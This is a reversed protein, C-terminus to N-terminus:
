NRPTPARSKPRSCGCFIPPTASRRTPRFRRRSRRPHARARRRDDAGAFDAAGGQAADGRAFQRGNGSRLSRARVRGHAACGDSPRRQDLPHYRAGARAAQAGGQARRRLRRAAAQDALRRQAAALRDGRFQFTRRPRPDFLRSLAARRGQRRHVHLAFPRFLCGHSRSSDQDSRKNRDNSAEETVRCIRVRHSAHFQEVAQKIDCAPAIAFDNQRFAVVRADDGGRHPEFSLLDGPRNQQSGCVRDAFRRGTDREIPDLDDIRAAVRPQLGVTLSQRRHAVAHRRCIAVRSTAFGKYKPPM